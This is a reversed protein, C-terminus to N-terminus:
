GQVGFQVCFAGASLKGFTDPIIWLPIFLGVICVCGSPVFPYLQTLKFHTYTPPVRVHDFSSSRHTSEIWRCGRRGQVDLQAMLLRGLPQPFNVYAIAGCNGIITAVMSDYRSLGKSVQLYTPYLDQSGHSLFSFGTMLMVVYICRLWHNKLMQGVEHFFIRTRSRAPQDLEAQKERRARLFVESEPLIARFVAAFASIGSATWFMARWSTHPVLYLNIVTAILYGVAYGQQIVGSALGRAEIPINELATASALGWIGGM